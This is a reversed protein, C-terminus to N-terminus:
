QPRKQPGKQNLIKGAAKCRSTSTGIPRSVYRITNVNGKDNVSIAIGRYRYEVELLSGTRSEYMPASEEDGLCEDFDYRTVIYDPGFHKVAKKRSLSEPYLEIAQLVETRADIVVTVEAAFDGDPDYRREYVYLVEPNPEEPTEAALTDVRKPQGLVRLVDARLSKGATLGLYTGAHWERDTQVTNAAPQLQRKTEQQTSPSSCQLAPVFQILLACLVFISKM